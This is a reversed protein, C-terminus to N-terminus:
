QQEDLGEGGRMVMLAIWAQSQGVAAADSLGVREARNAGKMEVRRRIRMRPGRQGAGRREFISDRCLRDARPMGADNGAGGRSGRRQGCLEATESGKF